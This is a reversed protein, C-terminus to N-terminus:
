LHYVLFNQELEDFRTYRITGDYRVFEKSMKPALVALANIAYTWLNWFQSASWTVTSDEEISPNVLQLITKMVKRKVM